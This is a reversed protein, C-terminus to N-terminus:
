PINSARLGDDGPKSALGVEKALESLRREVEDMNWLTKLMGLVRQVRLQGRVSPNSKPTQECLRSGSTLERSPVLEQISLQVEGQLSILVASM